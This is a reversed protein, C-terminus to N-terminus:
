SWSPDAPAAYSADIWQIVDLLLADAAAARAATLRQAHAMQGPDDYQALSPVREDRVRIVNRILAMTDDSPRPVGRAYAVLDGIIPLRDVAIAASASGAAVQSLWALATPDPTPPLVTPDPRDDTPPM